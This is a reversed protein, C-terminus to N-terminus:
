LEFQTINEQLIKVGQRGTNQRRGEWKGREGKEKGRGRECDKKGNV